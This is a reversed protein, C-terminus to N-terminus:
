RALNKVTYAIYPLSTPGNLPEQEGFPKINDTAWAPAVNAAGIGFTVATAAVVGAMEHHNESDGRASRTLTEGASIVSSIVADPGNAGASAFGGRDIPVEGFGFRTM